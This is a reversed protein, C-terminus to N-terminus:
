GLLMKMLTPLLEAADSTASDSPLTFARASHHGHSDDKDIGPCGDNPPGCSKFPSGYIASYVMLIILGFLIGTVGLGSAILCAYSGYAKLRSSSGKMMSSDASEVGSDASQYREYDKSM